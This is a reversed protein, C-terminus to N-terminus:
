AITSARPGLGCKRLRGLGLWRGDVARVEVIQGALEDLAAKNGSGLLMNSADLNRWSTHIHGTEGSPLTM